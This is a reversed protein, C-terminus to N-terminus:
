ASKKIVEPKATGLVCERAIREESIGDAAPIACGVEAGLSERATRLRRAVRKLGVAPM